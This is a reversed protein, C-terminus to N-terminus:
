LLSTRPVPVGIRCKWESLTNVDVSMTVMKQCLRSTLIESYRLCSSITKYVRVNRTKLYYHTLVELGEAEREM